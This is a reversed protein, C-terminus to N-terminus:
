DAACRVEHLTNRVGVMGLPLALLRAGLAVVPCGTRRICRLLSGCMSNDRMTLDLGLAILGGALAGIWVSGLIGGALVGYIVPVTRVILRGSAASTEPTMEHSYNVAYDEHRRRATPTTTKVDPNM